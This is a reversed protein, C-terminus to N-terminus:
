AGGRHEARLLDVVTKVPTFAEDGIEAFVTAWGAMSGNWLGPRELAKVEVGDVSKRSLFVARADVFRNLDYPMGNVSKLGCALLVPNFHTSGRFIERQVESRPDVQASEIIQRSVAGAADRVWFPGGGPEGTNRVVGCVRLPRDCYAVLDEDPVAAQDLGIVDCLARLGRHDGSECLTRRQEQLQVLRGILLRKWRLSAGRRQQPQINDINQVLAIDAGCSALNDLLAGHGGPRFVIRGERDRILRDDLDVAVTDSRPAQTSFAVDLTIRGDTGLSKRVRQLAAEFLAVHEYSVTFHARAHGRDDAVLEVAEHLHEEFATRSGNPYRHFPLLGKPLTSYGLGNEGVLADVVPALRGVRLAEDLDDGARRVAARLDDAFPLQGVGRVFQAVLAAAGDGSEARRELAESTGSEGRLALLAQFMRSAAGSAPVFKSLRGAGRARDHAALCGEEDDLQEIGDGIACGRVLNAPPPPNRFLDVQRAVEDASIGRQALDAVDFESLTFDGAGM